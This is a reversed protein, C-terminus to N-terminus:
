VFRDFLRTCLEECRILIAIRQESVQGIKRQERLRAREKVLDQERQVLKLKETTNTSQRMGIFALEEDRDQVAAARSAHGRFLRQINSAAVEPDVERNASKIHHLKRQMEEERLQKILMARNMGQRGRENRQLVAVAEELTFQLLPKNIDTPEQVPVTELGLRHQMLAVVLKDRARQEAISEETFFRPIPITLTDPPLKLDVLIDDLQIYEWPFPNQLTASQGILDPHVPNWKVLKQKLDLIRTIVVEMVLKVNIRKQPQLM